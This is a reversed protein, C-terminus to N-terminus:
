VFSELFGMPNQEFEEYNDVTVLVSKASPFNKLFAALGGQSKRRGSKVEIAWISKGRRLVYDVEYKGDRWYYLPEETRLLQAGVLAEFVRGKEDPTLVGRHTVYYLCPALPLIKPSSSKTKIRSNSFKELVRILYAGQYLDLYHKVLEVNGKDQIQGLLKTYSIEMAPYGIIIEFAQKFLAPNKVSQFQLIDREIVTSLISRYVYHYWEDTGVFQYSGPYGGFQLYDSFSIGYGAKSEAYNWHFASILQFRGSLSETLGRQISLSSSGLLVCKPLVKKRKSSDWLSKIVESWNQCKQIEDIVLLRDNRIAADWHESIWDASANLVADATVYLYKDSHSRELYDLVTTTKGVQRPGLLVQLLGNGSSLNRDLQSIFPLNIVKEM